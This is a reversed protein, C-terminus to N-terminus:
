SQDVFVGLFKTHLVKDIKVGDMYLVLSPDCALKKRRSAFCIYNTKAANLSLKNARFWACVKILEGNVTNILDSFDKSSYFLNTDDAFLIFHLINSCQVIDNIYLLFLM